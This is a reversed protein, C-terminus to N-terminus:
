FARRWPGREKLLTKRHALNAEHLMQCGEVCVREELVIGVCDQDVAAAFHFVQEDPMRDSSVVDGPIISGVPHDIWMKHSLHAPNGTHIPGDYQNTATPLARDGRPMSQLLCTEAVDDIDELAEFPRKVRVM